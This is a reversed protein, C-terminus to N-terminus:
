REVVRDDTVPVDSEARFDLTNEFHGTHIAGTVIFGDGITKSKTIGKAVLAEELVDGRIPGPEIRVKSREDLCNRVVL